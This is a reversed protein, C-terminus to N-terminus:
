LSPYIRGTSYGTGWNTNDGNTMFQSISNEGRYGFEYLYVPQANAQAMERAALEVGTNFIRHGVMQFLLLLLSLELQSRTEKRNM